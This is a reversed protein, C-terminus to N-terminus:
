KHGEFLFSVNLTSLSGRTRDSGELAFYPVQFHRTSSVRTSVYPGSVGTNRAGDTGPRSGGVPRRGRQGNCSSHTKTTLRRTEWRM